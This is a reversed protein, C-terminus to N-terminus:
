DSLAALLAEAAGRWTLAGATRVAARATEEREPTNEYARRMMAALSEIKPRAAYVEGGRWDYSARSADVLRYDVLYAGGSSFIEAAAGWNTTIVPRGCAAAELSALGFAEGYSPQVYVDAARYLAAMEDEALTGATLSIQPKRGDPLFDAASSYEWPRGSLSSLPPTKIVLGVDDAPRFAQSFGTTLEALGKRIHPAAVALFNFSRCTALPAKPGKPRYIATNAGFPVVRLKERPIGSRAAAELCFASPVLALDLYEAAPEAWHPPFRDAEWILIGARRTGTLRSFGPPYGLALDWGPLRERQIAATVADSLPFDEDYLFGKPSAASVYAGCADLAAVLERGVKAWSVPSRLLGVFHIARGM